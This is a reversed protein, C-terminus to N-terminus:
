LASRSWTDFWPMAIRRRARYCEDILELSPLVDSGSVAPEARGRVVDLFNDVVFRALDQPVRARSPLRLRKSTGSRPALVLTKWEFLHGRVAALDGVVEFTNAYRSLWSLRVEGSCDEHRFRLVGVAESGGLSDDEYSVVEPKADLWWCILDLIHAGKDMLAGRGGSALGFYTGSAAPWDFQEGWVFEIRRISGLAGSRILERVTRASPYLRRYNNVAIMVRNADARGLLSRAQSVSEVLPKECLVHVGAEVCHLAVDYHLRPPVAVIAGDAEAVADRYTALAAAAGFREAVAKARGIDADVCVLSAMVKPHRALAPLHLSEAVAGCGILTLRPVGDTIARKAGRAREPIM